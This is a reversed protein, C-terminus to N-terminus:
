NLCVLWKIIKKFIQKKYVFNFVFFTLIAGAIIDLFYHQKVYLTSVSVIIASIIFVNGLRHNDMKVVLAAFLSIAVHLSPFCNLPPNDMKYMLMVIFASLSTPNIQPREMIVPFAFFISFGIMYIIFLSFLMEEFDERDKIIFILTYPLFYFSIYIWIFYPNFPIWLDIPISLSIASTAKNIHVLTLYGLGGLVYYLLFFLIFRKIIEKSPIEKNLEYNM